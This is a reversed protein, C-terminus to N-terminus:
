RKFFIYDTVLPAIGSQRFDSVIQGRHHTTHNVVHFLIDQVTNSFADGKSNKYDIVKGLDATELVKMTDEYNEKDMNKCETLTHLDHVGISTTKM